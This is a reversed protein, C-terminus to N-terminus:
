HDPNSKWFERSKNKDLPVIEIYLWRSKLAIDAAEKNAQSLNFAIISYPFEEKSKMRAIYKQPENEM